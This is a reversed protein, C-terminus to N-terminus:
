LFSRGNGHLSVTTGMFPFRREWSPFGDNGHLPVTTGMFLFRREWSPSSDYGHLPVAMGSYSVFKMHTSSPATVENRLLSTGYYILLFLANAGIDVVFAFFLM